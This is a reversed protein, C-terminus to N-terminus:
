GLGWGTRVVQHSEQKEKLRDLQVHRKREEAARELETHYLLSNETKQPRFFCLMTVMTVENYGQHPSLM